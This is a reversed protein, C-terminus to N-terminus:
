AMGQTRGPHFLATDDIHRLPLLATTQQGPTKQISFLLPLPRPSVPLNILGLM